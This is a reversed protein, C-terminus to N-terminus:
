LNACFVQLEAYMTNPNNLNKVEEQGTLFCLVDGDKAIRHIKMVTEVTAKVYDPVPDLAYHVDVPFMRGEITMITATDRSKDGTENRYCLLVHM